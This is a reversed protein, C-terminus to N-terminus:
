LFNLPVTISHAIETIGAAVFLMGWVVGVDGLTPPREASIPFELKRICITAYDTSHLQHTQRKLCNRSLRSSVTTRNIRSASM